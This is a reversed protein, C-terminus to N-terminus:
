GVNLLAKHLGATSLPRQAMSCDVCFRAIAQRIAQLDMRDVLRACDQDPIVCGTWWAICSSIHESTLVAGRATAALADAIRAPFWEYLIQVPIQHQPDLFWFPPPARLRELLETDTMPGSECLSLLPQAIDFYRSLDRTQAHGAREVLGISSLRCPAGFMLAVEGETVGLVSALMRHADSESGFNLQMLATSLTATTDCSAFYAWALLAREAATLHLASAIQNLNRDAACDQGISPLVVTTLMDAFRVPDITPKRDELRRLCSLINAVSLADDSVDATRRFFAEISQAAWQFDDSNGLHPLANGLAHALKATMARQWNATAGNKSESENVDPIDPAAAGGLTSSTM